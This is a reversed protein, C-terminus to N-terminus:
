KKGLWAAGLQGGAGILSSLESQGAARANLAGVGQGLLATQNGLETANLDGLASLGAQQQKQKLDANSKEIGLENQSQQQGAQRGAQDLASTLGASNNTRAATLMGQGTLGATVGGLAQASGTRMANMDGSSYGQPNTAEAQLQPELSSYINSANAGLGQGTTNTLNRQSDAAQAQGRAM